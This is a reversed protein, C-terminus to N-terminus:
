QDGSWCRRRFNDLEEGVLVVRVQKISVESSAESTAEYAWPYFNEYSKGREVRTECTWSRVEVIVDELQGGDSVDAHPPFVLVVAEPDADKLLEILKRVNM